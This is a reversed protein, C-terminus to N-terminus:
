GRGGKAGEVPRQSIAVNTVNLNITVNKVRKLPEKPAIVGARDLVAGAAQARVYGSKHQLLEVLTKAALPASALLMSRTADYSQDLLRPNRLVRTIEHKRKKLRKAIQQDDLLEDNRLQAIQQQLPTLAADQEDQQDLPLTGM